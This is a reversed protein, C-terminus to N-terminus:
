RALACAELDKLTTQGRLEKELIRSSNQNAGMSNEELTDALPSCSSRTILQQPRHTRETIWVNSQTKHVAQERFPHHSAEVNEFFSYALSNHVLIFFPNFHVRLKQSLM